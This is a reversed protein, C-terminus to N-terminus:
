GHVNGSLIRVLQIGINSTSQLSFQFERRDPWRIQLRTNDHGRAIVDAGIRIAGKLARSLENRLEAPVEARIRLRLIEPISSM